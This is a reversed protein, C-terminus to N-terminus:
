NWRSQDIFSQDDQMVLQGLCRLDDSCRQRLDKAHFVPAEPRNCGLFNAFGRNTWVTATQPQKCDVELGTSKALNQLNNGANYNAM